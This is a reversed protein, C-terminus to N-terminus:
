QARAKLKGSNRLKQAAWRVDYQWTYLLDGSTKLEQEYNNWIYRCVDVVRARGSNAKLAEVVIPM